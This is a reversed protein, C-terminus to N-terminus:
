LKKDNILTGNVSEIRTKKSDTDVYLSYLCLTVNDLGPIPIEGCEVVPLKHTNDTPMVTVVDIKLKSFVDHEKDEQNRYINWWKKGCNNDRLLYGIFTAYILAQTMVTAQPESSTNEDKLEMVALRWHNENKHQIRALIDIGGGIAAGDKRMKYIPEHKSAAFVTRMQFFGYGDGGGLMVPRCYTIKKKKGDTQILDHLILSEYQHEPSKVKACDGKYGVLTKLIRKAEDSDLEYPRRLPNAPIELNFYKKNNDHQTKNVTLCIGRRRNYTLGGVSQGFIRLDFYASKTSKQVLAISSYIRLLGLDPLQKKIKQSAEKYLNDADEINKAYRNYTNRWDKKKALEKAVKEVTKTYDMM